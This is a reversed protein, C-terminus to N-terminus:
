EIKLLWGDKAKCNNKGTANIEIRAYTNQLSAPLKGVVSYGSNIQKVTVDVPQRKVKVKITAPNTLSSVVLSFGTKPAVLALHPPTFQNFKPKKCATKSSRSGYALANTSFIVLLFVALLRPIHM